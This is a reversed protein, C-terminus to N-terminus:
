SERGEKEQLEKRRVVLSQKLKQYSEQSMCHEMKYADKDAIEPEVGIMELFEKLVLYRDYMQEAIEEGRHTLEINGDVDRIVYGSKCLERMANSISPKSFHMYKCLMNNRVYGKRCKIIYTAKLYNEKSEGLEM